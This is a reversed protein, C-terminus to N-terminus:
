DIVRIVVEWGELHEGGLEDPIEKIIYNFKIAKIAFLSEIYAVTREFSYIEEENKLKDWIEWTLEIANDTNSGIPGYDYFCSRIKKSVESKKIASSFSFNSLKPENFLIDAGEITGESLWPLLNKKKIEKYFDVMFNHLTKFESDKLYESSTIYFHTENNRLQSLLKLSNPDVNDILKDKKCIEILESFEITFFQKRDESKLNLFYENLNSSELYSKLPEGNASAIKNIRAVRYDNNDLMIQKLMLEVANHLSSVFRKKYGLTSIGDRLLFEYAVADSWAEYANELLIQKRMKM